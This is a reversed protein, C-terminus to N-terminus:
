QETRLLDDALSTYKQHPTKLGYGRGNWAVWITTWVQGDPFRDIHSGYELGKREGDEGAMVFVFIGHFCAPLIRGLFRTVRVIPNRRRALEKSRLLQIQEDSLRWRNQTNM